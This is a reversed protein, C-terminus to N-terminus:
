TCLLLLLGACVAGLVPYVSQVLSSFGLRAFLLCLACCLLTGMPERTGLLRRMSLLLACLTSFAAAAMCAAFLLYGGCERSLALFPMPHSLSLARHRICVACGLSLLAFFLVGFLLVACKREQNTLPLLLPLAGLLLATNLAAYSVGDALARVPLDPTMAPYFCAEGAELFLFRILLVPLLVLLGAGCLALGRLSRRAFLVSLLLAAAMGLGYAHAFPLVLASLEACAALMAGATVAALLFFLASCLRGLSDGFRLRCLSSADQAHLQQMKQCLRLFFFVMFLSALLAAAPAAPGHGAFFRAIERGSAFGAGIMGALLALACSVIQM